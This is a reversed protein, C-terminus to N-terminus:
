LKITLEENTLAYHINQLQHLYKIDIVHFSGHTGCFKWEAQLNDDSTLYGLIFKDKHFWDGHQTFGECKLLIEETLPIPKIDACDSEDLKYLDYGSDLQYYKETKDKVLIVWNGLRLDQAKIEM